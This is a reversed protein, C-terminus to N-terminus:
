KLNICSEHSKIYSCQLLYKKNRPQTAQVESEGTGPGRGERPGRPGEKKGGLGDRLAVRPKRGESGVDPLPPAFLHGDIHRTLSKKTRILRNKNIKSEYFRFMRFKAM